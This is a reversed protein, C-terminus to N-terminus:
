LDILDGRVTRNAFKQEFLDDLGYGAVQALRDARAQSLRKMEPTKVRRLADALLREQIKQDVGDQSRALLAMRRVIAPMNPNGSRPMCFQQDGCNLIDQQISPDSIFRRGMALARLGGLASYKHANLLAIKKFKNKRKLHARYSDALSGLVAWSQAKRKTEPYLSSYLAGNDLIKQLRRAFMKNAFPKRGLSGYDELLQTAWQPQTTSMKKDTIIVPQTQNRIICIKYM